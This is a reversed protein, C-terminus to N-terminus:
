VRHRKGNVYVIFTCTDRSGVKNTWTLQVATKGAHYAHTGNLVGPPSSTIHQHTRARTDDLGESLYSRFADSDGLGLHKPDITMTSKGPLLTFHKDEPCHSHPESSLTIVIFPHVKEKLPGDM